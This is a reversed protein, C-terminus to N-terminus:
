IVEIKSGNKEIAEKASSSFKHAKITLKLENDTQYIREKLEKKM